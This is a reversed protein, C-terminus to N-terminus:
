KVISMILQGFHTESILMLHLFRVHKCIKTINMYAVVDLSSTISYLFIIFEKLRELLM